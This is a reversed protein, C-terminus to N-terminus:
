ARDSQFAIMALHLITANPNRRFGLPYKYTWGANDSEKNNHITLWTLCHLFIKKPSFSNVRTLNVPFITRNFTNCEIHIKSPTLM